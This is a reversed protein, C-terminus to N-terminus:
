LLDQHKMEQLRQNALSSVLTHRVLRKSNNFFPKGKKDKEVNGNRINIVGNQLCQPCHAYEVQWAKGLIAPVATNSKAESVFGFDGSQEAAPIKSEDLDRVYFDKNENFKGCPECFYDNMLKFVLLAPSLFLLLEIFYLVLLGLGTIGAGNRSSFGRSISLEHTEAWNFIDGLVEGVKPLSKWFHYQSTYAWQSYWAVICVIFVCIFKVANNRIMGIRVVGLSVIFIFAVAFILVFANVILFPILDMAWGYGVGIFVACAIGFLLGLITRPLNIKGSSVYHAM